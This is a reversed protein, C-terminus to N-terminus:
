INKIPMSVKIQCHISLFPSLPLTVHLLPGRAPNLGPDVTCMAHVRVVRSGTCSMCGMKSDLQHTTKLMASSLKHGDAVHGCAEEVFWPLTMRRCQPSTWVPNSVVHLTITGGNSQSPPCQRHHPHPSTALHWCSVPDM